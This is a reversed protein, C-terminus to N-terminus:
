SRPASCGGSGATCPRSPSSRARDPPRPGPRTWGSRSPRCAPPPSATPRRSGGILEFGGRTGAAGAATSSGVRRVWGPDVLTPEPTSSPWSRHRSRELHELDALDLVQLYMRRPVTEGFAGIKDLVEAPSGALGNTRLEDVDRGIRGARRAVEAEDKGCCAGPRGLSSRRRTAASRRAAARGPCLAQAGSGPRLACQVGAFRAALRPMRKAGHGGVVVPPHPSRSRSRPPGPTDKLQYHRGEFHYTEGAPTSWLGTIIELQEELRDFREGPGPLPHRLRHARGRVLRRRPRARGPRREHRRGRGGLDGAARAAPLDGPSSRASGSASPRAPWARRPHGVRRHPGPRGLGRGDEPLPRLPLVRRLRDSPRRPWRSCTRTPPARSPSPSCRLDM